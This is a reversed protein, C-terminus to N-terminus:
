RNLWINEFKNWASHSDQYVTFNQVSPRTASGTEFWIGFVRPYDDLILRIARHVLERRKAPDLEVAQAAIIPALGKIEYDFPNGAAGKLCCDSLYDTPSTGAPIFATDIMTDDAPTLRAVAEFFPGRELPVLEVKIGIKSLMDQRFAATPPGFADARHIMRLVKSVGGAEAILQRAMELKQELPMRGFEPRRLLEEKPLAWQPALDSSVVPGISGWGDLTAKMHGDWDMALAIAKRVRIDNFPPVAPNFVLGFYANNAWRIVKAGRVEQTIRDVHPKTLGFPVMDLRGTILARVATEADKIVILDVGDINPLGRKFYRANRRFKYIEGPITQTLRFPGTGLMERLVADRGKGQLFKKSLISTTQFAFMDILDPSLRRLRFRVVRGNVVVSRIDKLFVEHPSRAGGPQNQMQEVSAVVDEGTFPSGDHFRVGQRLVFELTMGGDAWRWSEALDGLYETPKQPNHNLLQSYVKGVINHVDWTIFGHPNFHPPDSRAWSIVVGGRKAGPPAASTTALSVSVFLLLGISIGAGLNRLARFTNM